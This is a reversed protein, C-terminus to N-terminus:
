REPNLNPLYPRRAAADPSNRGTTAPRTSAPAARGGMRLLRTGLGLGATAPRRAFAFDIAGRKAAFLLAGRVFHCNLINYGRGGPAPSNRCPSDEPHASSQITEPEQQKHCSRCSQEPNLGGRGRATPSDYGGGTPWGKVPPPSVGWDRRPYLGPRCEGRGM